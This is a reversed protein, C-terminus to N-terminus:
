NTIGCALENAAAAVRKIDDNTMSVNATKINQVTNSQHPTIRSNMKRPKGKRNKGKGKGRDLQAKRKRVDAIGRSNRAEHISESIYDCVDLMDNFNKGRVAFIENCAGDGLITDLMNEATLIFDNILRRNDAENNCNRLKRSIASCNDGFTTLAALTKDSNCDVNFTHGAIELETTVSAFEFKKAM